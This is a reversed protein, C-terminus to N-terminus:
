FLSNMIGTPQSRPLLFRKRKGERSNKGVVGGQKWLEGGGVAWKWGDGPSPNSSEAVLYEYNRNGRMLGRAMMM